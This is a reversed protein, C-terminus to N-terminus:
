DQAGADNPPPWSDSPQNSDSFRAAELDFGKKGAYDEIGALSEIYAVIEWATRQPLMSSWAPMGEPRGHMISLFIQAPEDGYIWEEDSLPPGMGGGGLPAHCGGCNFAEFHREGAAIAAPDGAHPNAIGAAIRASGPFLSTAPVYIVRDGEAPLREAVSQLDAEVVPTFTGSATAGERASRTAVAGSGTGAADTGDGEPGRSDCGGLVAAAVICLAAGALRLSHLQREIM